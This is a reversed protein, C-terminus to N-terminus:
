IIGWLTTLRYIPLGSGMIKVMGSPLFGAALAIRNFVAFYGLWRNGRARAHVQDLKDAISM